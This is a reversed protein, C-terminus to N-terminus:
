RVGWRPGWCVRPSFGWQPSPRGAKLARRLQTRNRLIGLGKLPDLLRTRAVRLQTRNRAVVFGARTGASTGQPSGASVAASVRPSFCTDLWLHRVLASCGRWGRVRVLPCQGPVDDEQRSPLARIVLGLPACRWAPVIQASFHGEPISAYVHRFTRLSEQEQARLIRCHASRESRSGRGPNTVPREWKPAETSSGSRRSNIRFRRRAAGPSPSRRM